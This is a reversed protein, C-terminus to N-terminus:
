NNAEPFQVLSISCARMALHFGSVVVNNGYKRSELKADHGDNNVFGEDTPPKGKQEQSRWTVKRANGVKAPRSDFWSGLLWRWHETSRDYM